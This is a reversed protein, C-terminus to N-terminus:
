RQDRPVNVVRRVGFFPNRTAAEQGDLFKKAKIADDISLEEVSTGDVSVQKPGNLLDEIRETSADSMCM